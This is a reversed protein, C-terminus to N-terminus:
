QKRVLVDQQTRTETIRCDNFVSNVETYSLELRNGNQVVRGQMPLTQDSCHRLHGLSFVRPRYYGFLQDGRAKGNFVLKNNNWIEFENGWVRIQHLHEGHCWPGEQPHVFCWDGALQTAEGSTQARCPPVFCVITILLLVTTLQKM